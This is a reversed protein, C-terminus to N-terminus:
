LARQKIIHHEEDTVIEDMTADLNTSPIDDLLQFHFCLGIRHATTRPLLRDYYGKGRGLRHGSRDFAVGPVVIVSFTSANTNLWKINRVKADDSERADSEKASSKDPEMIGYAGQHMDDDSTYRRFIMETDSVVVPLYVVKGMATLRHIAEKTCVEDPLSAYIAVEEAKLILKDNLLREVARASMAQLEKSTYKSKEERMMRRLQQKSHSQSDITASKLTM